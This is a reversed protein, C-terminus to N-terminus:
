WLSDAAQAFCRCHVPTDPVLRTDPVAGPFCLDEEQWPAHWDGMAQQLECSGALGHGLGHAVNAALM